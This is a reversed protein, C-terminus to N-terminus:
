PKGGELDELRREHAEVIRALAAINEGDRRAAEVLQQAIGHLEGASAHLSEINAHLVEQRAALDSLRGGLDHITKAAEAQLREVRDLRTENNNDNPM